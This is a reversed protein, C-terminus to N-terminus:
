RMIVSTLKNKRDTLFSLTEKYSDYVIGLPESELKKSLIEILEHADNTEKLIVNKLYRPYINSSTLEFFYKLREYAKDLLGSASYINSLLMQFEPNGHTGFEKELNEYENIMNYWFSKKFTNYETPTIGGSMGLIWFRDVITKYKQKKIEHQQKEYEIKNDEKIATITNNKDQIILKLKEIEKQEKEEQEKEKNRADQISILLPKTSNFFTKSINMVTQSKPVRLKVNKCIDTALENLYDKNDQDVFTFKDIKSNVFGKLEDIDIDPLILYFCHKKKRQALYWGIGLEEMCYSSKLFANSILYIILKSKNIANCIEDNLKKGNKVGQGIISSCFINKENVGLRSIFTCLHEAIETNNSSHSIFVNKNFLM